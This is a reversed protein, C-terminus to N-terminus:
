GTPAEQSKEIGIGVKERASPHNKDLFVIHSMGPPTLLLGVALMSVTVLVSVTVATPVLVSVTVTVPSSRYKKHAKYRSLEERLRLAVQLKMQESIMMRM